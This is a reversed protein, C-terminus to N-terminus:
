CSSSTPLALSSMQSERLWLCDLLNHCTGLPETAVTLWAIAVQKQTAECLCTKWDQWWLIFSEYVKHKVIGRITSSKSIQVLKWLLAKVPFTACFFCHETYFRFASAAVPSYTICVRSLLSLMCAHWHASLLVIVACRKKLYQLRSQFERQSQHKSSNLRCHKSFVM